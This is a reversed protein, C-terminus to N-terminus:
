IPHRHGYRETQTFLELLGPDIKGAQCDAIMRNFEDRRKTSTGSIGEDAYIDVLEYEPNNNIYATYYAVQNEFSNLQEEEATSVRCYAAVRLKKQPMRAGGVMVSRQQAPIHLIQRAM